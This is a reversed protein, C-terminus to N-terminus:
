PTLNRILKAQFSLLKAERDPPVGCERIVEAYASLTETDTTVAIEPVFGREVALLEFKQETTLGSERVKQGFARVVDAHGKKLAVYLGPVGDKRKADLLEAQLGMNVGSNRVADCFAGVAGAHGNQLAM